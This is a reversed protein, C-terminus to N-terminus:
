ALSLEIIKEVSDKMLDIGKEIDENKAKKQKSTRQLRKANKATTTQGVTKFYTEPLPLHVFLAETPHKQKYQFRLCRYYIENCIFTGAHNSIESAVGLERLRNNMDVIRLTTRLADPGKKDILEDEYQHGGNDKIRYDRINLAFRELSIKERTSAVGMLIIADYEDENEKFHGKLIDWAEECCTPLILTDIAVKGAKSSLKLDKGLSEVITQSPNSSVKSFADFGTVLVKKRKSPM